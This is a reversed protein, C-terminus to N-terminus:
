RSMGANLHQMEIGHPDSDIIFLDFYAPIIDNYDTWVTTHVGGQLSDYGGFASRTGAADFGLSPVYCATSAQNLKWGAYYWVETQLWVPDFSVPINMLNTFSFPWGPDIDMNAGEGIATLTDNDEYIGGIIDGNRWVVGEFGSVKVRRGLSGPLKFKWGSVDGVTTVAAGSPASGFAEVPFGFADTSSARYGFMPTCNSDASWNSGGDTSFSSLPFYRNLQIGLIPVIINNSGDPATGSADGEIVIAYLTGAALTISNDLTVWNFGVAPTVLGVSAPSGGGLIGSPTLNGDVSQVSVKYDPSGNLTVVPFGVDVITADEECVFIFALHDNTADLVKQLTTVDGYYSSLGPLGGLMLRYLGQPM